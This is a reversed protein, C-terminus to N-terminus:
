EQGCARQIYLTRASALPKFQTTVVNLHDGPIVEVELEAALNGWIAAPDDPFFSKIETTVFNDKGSFIKASLECIGPLSKEKVRRLATEGFLLSVM